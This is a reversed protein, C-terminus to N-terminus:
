LCKFIFKECPNIRDNEKGGQIDDGKQDILWQWREKLVFQRM